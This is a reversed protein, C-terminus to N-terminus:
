ILLKEMEYQDVYNQFGLLSLLAQADPDPVNLVRIHEVETMKILHSILSRGIGRGRYEPSVAFSPIDGEKREIIGYGVIREGEMAVCFVYNEKVALVSEFSNQWSPNFNWFDRLSGTELVSVDEIRWEEPCSFDRKEIRYCKFSRKVSFGRNVYIHYAKTNSTLVELLHRKVGRSLLHKQLFDLMEGTIGQGRAEPIVGTGMDYAVPVGDYVRKANMIFGVLNSDLFAGVSINADYGNRVMNRQFHEFPLDLRVQYDSFSSVFAEYLVSVPIDALVSYVIM